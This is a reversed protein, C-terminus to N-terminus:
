YHGLASGLPGTFELHADELGALLKAIKMGTARKNEVSEWDTHLNNLQSEFRTSTGVSRHTKALSSPLTDGGEYASDVSSSQASANEIPQVPLLGASRLITEPPITVRGRKFVYKAVLTAFIAPHPQGNIDNEPPKNSSPTRWPQLSYGMPKVKKGDVLHTLLYM